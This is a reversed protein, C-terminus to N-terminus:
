QVHPRSEQVRRGYKDLGVVEPPCVCAHMEITAECTM